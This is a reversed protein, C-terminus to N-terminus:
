ANSVLTLYDLIESVVEDKRLAVYVLGIPVFLKVIEEDMHRYAESSFFFEVPRKLANRLLFSLAQSPPKELFAFVCPSEYTIEFKTNPLFRVVELNKLNLSAVGANLLQNSIDTIVLVSKKM